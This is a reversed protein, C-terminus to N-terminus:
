KGAPAYKNQLLKKLLQAVSSEFVPHEFRPAIFSVPLLVFEREHARPHPVTLREGETIIQNNYFIIDLDIERPGNKFTAQRGVQTEIEKLLQLLPLPQLATKLLLAGNLFDAQQAHGEPKTSFLPSIKEVSGATKLLAIARAINKKREGANAGFAIYVNNIQAASPM